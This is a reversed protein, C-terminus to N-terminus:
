GAAKIPPAALEDEATLFIMHDLNSRIQPSKSFTPERICVALIESAEIKTRRLAIRGDQAESRLLVDQSQEKKSHDGEHGTEPLISRHQSGHASQGKGRQYNLWYTKFLKVMQWAGPYM